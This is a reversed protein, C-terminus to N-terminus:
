ENGGEHEITDMHHALVEAAAKSVGHQKGYIVAKFTLGVDLCIQSYHEKAWEDHEDALTPAAFAIAIALTIALKKMTKTDEAGPTLTHFAGASFFDQVEEPRFDITGFTTAILM